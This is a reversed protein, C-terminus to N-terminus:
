WIVTGQLLCNTPFYGVGHFPDKMVATVLDFVKDAKQKDTRHWWRCDERFRNTFLPYRSPIELKPLRSLNPKTKKRKDKM